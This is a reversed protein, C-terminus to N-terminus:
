FDANYNEEFDYSTSLNHGDIQSIHLKIILSYFHVIRANRITRVIFLM